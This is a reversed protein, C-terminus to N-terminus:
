NPWDLLWGFLWDSETKWDTLWDTTWDATWEYQVPWGSLWNNVSVCSTVEDSVWARTFRSGTLWDNLSESRWGTFRTCLYARSPSVRLVMYSTHRIQEWHCVIPLLQVHSCKQEADAAFRDRQWKAPSILTLSVIHSMARANRSDPLLRKTTNM